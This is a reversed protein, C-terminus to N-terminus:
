GWEFATAARVGPGMLLKQPRKWTMRTLRRQIALGAEALLEPTGEERFADVLVPTGELERAAAALLTRFGDPTAAVVPGLHSALRGRRLFAWASPQDDDFVAWAATEEDKRLHRLLATRDIGCAERDLQAVQALVDGEVWTLPREIPREKLVGSWRDIPAVDVFGMKLYLPRGLDTADLGFAEGVNWEAHGVARRLMETGWGRGRREQDVLVMGIWAASPGYEVVSATAVLEDDARGAFAGDLSGELVRTWDAATQNWGSQTSLRLADPVDEPRLSDIQLKGAV